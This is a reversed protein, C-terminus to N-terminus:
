SPTDLNYYVNMFLRMNFSAPLPRSEHIYSLITLSRGLQALYVPSIERPQEAIAVDVYDCIQSLFDRCNSDEEMLKPFEAYQYMRQIVHCFSSSPLDRVSARGKDFGVTKNKGELLNRGKQIAFVENEHFSGSLRPYPLEFLEHRTTGSHGYIAGQLARLESIPKRDLRNVPHRNWYNYRHKFSAEFLCFEEEKKKARPIWDEAQSLHKSSDGCVDLFRGTLAVPITLCEGTESKVLTLLSIDPNEFSNLILKELARFFADVQQNRIDDAGLYFGLWELYEEGSPSGPIIEQKLIALTKELEGEQGCLCCARALHILSLQGNNYSSGLQEQVLARCEEFVVQAQLLQGSEVLRCAYLIGIEIRLCWLRSEKCAKKSLEFAVESWTLAKEIFM